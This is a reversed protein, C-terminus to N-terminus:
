GHTVEVSELLGFRAERWAGAGDVDSTEAFWPGGNTWHLVKADFNMEYEGILWNWELPLHGIRADHTWQFRHLELGTAENVYSPKLAKCNECNFVMFSSWNKRPYATQPEGCFKTTSSPTYDHPCVYVARNPLDPTALFVDAIDTLCLMDCDMFIAVGKFDCLAPVLFRTLSFDTSEKPGRPRDYIRKMHERKLPTISVPVSAREIISQALVHYALAERADYGIFIRIPTM